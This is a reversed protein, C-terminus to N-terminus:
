NMSGEPVEVVDCTGAEVAVGAAVVAGAGRGRGVGTGLAVGFAATITRGGIISVGM